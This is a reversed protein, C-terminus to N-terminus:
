PTRRESQHIDPADAKAGILKRLKRMLGRHTDDLTLLRSEALVGWLEVRAIEAETLPVLTSTKELDNPM